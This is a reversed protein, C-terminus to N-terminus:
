GRYGKRREDCRIELIILGLFILFIAGSGIGGVVLPVIIPLGCPIKIVWEQVIFYGVLSIILPALSLYSFPNPLMKKIAVLIIRM